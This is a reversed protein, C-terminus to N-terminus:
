LALLNRKDKRYCKVALLFFAGLSSWAAKDYRDQLAERVTEALPALVGHLSLDSVLYNGMVLTTIFSVIGLGVAWQTRSSHSFVVLFEEFWSVM